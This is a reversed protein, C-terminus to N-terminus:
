KVRKERSCEIKRGMKLSIDENNNYTYMYMYVCIFLHINFM